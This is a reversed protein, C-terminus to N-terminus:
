QSAVVEATGDARSIITLPLNIVPSDPVLRVLGPPVLGAADKAAGPWAVAAGKGENDKTTTGSGKTQWLERGERDRISMRYTIQYADVMELLTYGDAPRQNWKPNLIERGAERSKNVELGEFHVTLDAEPDVRYGRDAIADALMERVTATSGSAGEASVRFSTHPGIIVGGGPLAPVSTATLYNAPAGDPVWKARGRSAGPAAAASKEKMAVGPILRWVREDPIAGTPTAIPPSGFTFTIGGLDLDYLDKGGIVLQRDGAWHLPLPVFIRSGPGPPWKRRPDYYRAYAPKGDALTWVVLPDGYDCSALGALRTGDPSVALRIGGAPQFGPVTLRGATSGDATAIAEVGGEVGALLWTRRPTLVADGALKLPREYVLKGTSVERCRLTDLTLVLLRDASAFWLGRIFGKGLMRDADAVLGIKGEPWEGLRRGDRDWIVVGVPDKLYGGQFVTALRDGSPSLAVEWSKQALNYTRDRSRSDAENDKPKTRPRTQAMGSEPNQTLPVVKAGAPDTLSLQAWPQTITRSVQDYQQEFVVAATAAKPDAFTLTVVPGRSSTNPCAVVPRTEAPPPDAPEAAVKWSAPDAPPFEHPLVTSPNATDYYNAKPERVPSDSDGGGGGLLLWVGVLLGAVVAAAVM